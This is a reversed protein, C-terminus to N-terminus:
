CWDHGSNFSVATMKFKPELDPNHTIALYAHEALGVVVIHNLKTM